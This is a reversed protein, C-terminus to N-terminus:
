PKDPLFRISSLVDDFLKQDDPRFYVKSLHVEACLDGSGLYAHVDQMALKGAPTHDIFSEVKAVGNQMSKKTRDFDVNHSRLANQEKRWLDDRCKEPSAAFPVELLFATILVHDTRSMANLYIQAGEDKLTTRWPTSGPDLELVGQRGPLSLRAWGTREGSNVEVSRRLCYASEFQDQYDFSIQRAEGDRLEFPGGQAMADYKGTHDRGPEYFITWDKGPCTIAKRRDPAKEMSWLFRLDYWGPSLQSYSYKGNADTTAEPLDVFCRVAKEKAKASSDPNVFLKACDADRLRQLVVLGGSVSRGRETLTLNVSSTSQANAALCALVMLAGIVAWGGIRGGADAPETQAILVKNMTM